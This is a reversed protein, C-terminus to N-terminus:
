FHFVQGPVGSAPSNTFLCRYYATKNTLSVESDNGRDNNDMMMPSGPMRPLPPLPEDDEEEEEDVQVRRRKAAGEAAADTDAMSGPSAFSAACGTFDARSAVCYRFAAMPKALGGQRPHCSPVTTYVVNGYLSKLSVQAGRRGSLNPGTPIVRRKEGQDPPPELWWCPLSQRPM